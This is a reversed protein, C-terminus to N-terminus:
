GATAPKSRLIHLTQPAINLSDAANKLVTEAPERLPQRCIQPIRRRFQPRM